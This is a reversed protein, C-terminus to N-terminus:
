PQIGQLSALRLSSATTTRNPGSRTPETRWRPRERGVGPSHHGFPNTGIARRFVGLEGTEAAAPRSGCTLVYALRAARHRHPIDRVLGGLRDARQAVQGGTATGE